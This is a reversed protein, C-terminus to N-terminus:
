RINALREIAAKYIEFALEATSCPMYENKQHAVGPSGPMAPGFSVIGSMARAYTGGGMTFPETKLGTKENFVDVLTTILKSTKDFYVPAKDEIVTLEVGYTSVAGRIAEIISASNSETVPYRIDIVTTINEGEDTIVGVNLTLEGSVDDARAVGLLAGDCGEDFCGCIFRSLGCPSDAHVKVMCDLIANKGKKPESGHASVGKGVYAKGCVTCRCEDPVKNAADGGSVFDVGSVSKPMTLALHMIGKEGFGVPFEADPTFGMSPLEENQCYYSMDIWEGREETLGFIIRVRRGLKVGSELLDKMAYICIMAPGKDDEVGRGYIRAEGDVVARTLGFAPYEWGTGEPVVDLHALIGIMEDGEGIEAWGLLNSCKKTRFGYKDCLALTYDLADACAKGFPYEKDGDVSVSPISLLGELDKYFQETM